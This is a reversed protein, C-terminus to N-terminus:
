EKARPKKFFFWPAKPLVGVDILEWGKDALAAIIPYDKDIDDNLGRGNKIEQRRFGKPASSDLFDLVRKVGFTGTQVFRLVCYEWKQIDSGESEPSKEASM